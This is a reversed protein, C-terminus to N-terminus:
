ITEAAESPSSSLKTLMVKLEFALQERLAEADEPGIDDSALRLLIPEFARLVRALNPANSQVAAHEFLRNQEILQLTLEIRGAEDAIPLSTIDRQSQDLHVMLGRTFSVPIAFAPVSDTGAIATDIVNEPTQQDQLRVGIAIGIAVAAALAVGIGALWFRSFAHQVARHVVVRGPSERAARDISAHWRERLEDATPPVAEERWNTLEVCLQEYQMALQPDGSLAIRVQEREGPALENYFYLLLTDETIM